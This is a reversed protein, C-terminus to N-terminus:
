SFCRVANAASHAKNLAQLAMGLEGLKAIAELQEHKGAPFEYNGIEAHLRWYEAHMTDRLTRLNNCFLEGCEMIDAAMPNGRDAIIKATSATYQKTSKSM